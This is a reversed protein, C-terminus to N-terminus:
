QAALQYRRIRHEGNDPDEHRVVITDRHFVLAHEDAALMISLQPEGSSDYRIWQEAARAPDHRRLWLHTDDARADTFVPYHTPLTARAFSSRLASREREPSLAVVSDVARTM